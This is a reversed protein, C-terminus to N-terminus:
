EHRGHWVRIGMIGGGGGGSGAITLIASVCLFFPAVPYGTSHQYKDRGPAASLGLRPQVAGIPTPVLQTCSYRRTPPDYRSLVHGPAGALLGVKRSSSIYISAHNQAVVREAFLDQPWCWNNHTLHAGKSGPVLAVPLTPLGAPAV